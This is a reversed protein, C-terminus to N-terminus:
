FNRLIWLFDDTTSNKIYYFKILFLSWHLHKETFIRVSCTRVVSESPLLLICHFRQSKVFHLSEISCCFISLWSLNQAVLNLFCLRLDVNEWKAKDCGQLLLLIWHMSSIYWLSFKAHRKWHKGLFVVLEEPIYLFFLVAFHQKHSHLSFNYWFTPVIKGFLIPMFVYMMGYMVKFSLERLENLFHSKVRQSQNWVLSNHFNSINCFRSSKFTKKM